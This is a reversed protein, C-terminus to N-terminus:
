KKPLIKPLDALIAAIARDTLGGRQFAHNAQVVSENYLVATVDAEKALKYEKLVSQDEISLITTRLRKTKALQELDKRFADGDKLFVVFAGLNQKRHTDTAAEIQTILKVLSESLDRAFIMVVPNLGNECVLCHPENAFEGNINLPRFAYLIEDKPQPGSRLPSQAGATECMLLFVIALRAM